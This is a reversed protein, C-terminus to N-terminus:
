LMEGMKIVDGCQCKSAYFEKRKGGGIQKIYSHKFQTSGPLRIVEEYDRKHMHQGNLSHSCATPLSQFLEHNSEATGPKHDAQMTVFESM